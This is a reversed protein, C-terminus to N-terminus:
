KREPNILPNMQAMYTIAWFLWMCFVATTGLTYRLQNAGRKGTVMNGLLVLGELVAFSVTTIWFTM